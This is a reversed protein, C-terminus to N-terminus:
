KLLCVKNHYRLLIDPLNGVGLILILAHIVSVYLYSQAKRIKKKNLEVRIKGSYNCTGRVTDHRVTQRMSM